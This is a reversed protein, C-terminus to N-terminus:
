TVDIVEKEGRVWARLGVILDHNGPAYEWELRVIHKVRIRYSFGSLVSRSELTAGPQPLPEGPAIEICFAGRPQQNSSQVNAAISM